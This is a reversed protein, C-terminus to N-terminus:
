QIRIRPNLLMYGLDGVIQTTPAIV